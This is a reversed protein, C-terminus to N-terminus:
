STHEESRRRAGGRCPPARHGLSGLLDSRPLVQAVLPAEERDGLDVLAHPRGEGGGLRQKVPHGLALRAPARDRPLPRDLLHHVVKDLRMAVADVLKTVEQRPPARRPRGAGAPSWERSGMLRGQGSTRWFSLATWASASSTSAWAASPYTVSARAGRTM